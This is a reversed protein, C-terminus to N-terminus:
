CFIQLLRLGQPDLTWLCSGLTALECNMRATHNGYFEDSCWCTNLILINLIVVFQSRKKVDSGLTTILWYHDIFLWHSHLIVMNLVFSEKHRSFVCFSWLSVGSSRKETLCFRRRTNIRLGAPAKNVAWVKLKSWEVNSSRLLVSVFWTLLWLDMLPCWQQGTAGGAPQLSVNCCVSCKLHSM